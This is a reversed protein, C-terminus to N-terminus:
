DRMIRAGVVVENEFAICLWESDISIFGREPGLWYVYDYNAFYSTDTPSGLLEDIQRQNMGVLEHRALLDDVMALRSADSGTVSKWRGSDFKTGGFWWYCLLLSGIVFLVAVVRPRILSMQKKGNHAPLLKLAM